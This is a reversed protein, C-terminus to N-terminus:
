RPIVDVGIVKKITVLSNGGIVNCDANNAGRGARTVEVYLAQGAANPATARIFGTAGQILAPAPGAKPGFAYSFLYESGCGTNPAQARASVSYTFGPLVAFTIRGPHDASLVLFEAVFRSGRDEGAPRFPPLAVLRNTGPELRVIKESRFLLRGMLLISTAVKYNVGSRLGTTDFTM